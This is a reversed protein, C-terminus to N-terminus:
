HTEDGGTRIDRLEALPDALDRWEAGEIARLRAVTEHWPADDLVEFSTVVFRELHWGGETDRRWRGEGFVRIPREFLHSRLCRAMDRTMECRWTQDGEQLLAHVSKDKGGIRILVGDLSGHQRFGGYDLPKPRDRGPFRIIEATEGGSLVGTANDAALRRDLNGFAKLADAPADGREVARIRARVKPFAPEEIRQVLVTSGEELHEFHVNEPEGLLAALDTMYEALRAMPSTAPTYADIKFRYEYNETMDAGYLKEYEVTRM